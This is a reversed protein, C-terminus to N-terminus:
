ELEVEMPMCVQGPLTTFTNLHLQGVTNLGWVFVSGDGTVAVSHTEGGAIAVVDALDVLAPRLVNTGFQPTTPNVEDELGLQCYRNWGTTYLSGDATLWLSHRDGAAVSVVNSVDVVQTPVSYNSLTGGNGLQGHFNYGLGWATGDARVFYCSDTYGAAIAVVNGMVSRPTCGFRTGWVWANGGTDLAVVHSSGAAVDVLNTPAGLVQVVNVGGSANVPPAGGLVCSGTSGAFGWLAGSGKLMVAGRPFAAVQVVESIGPVQVPSASNSFLDDGFVFVSGANTALVTHFASAAAAAIDTTLTSDGLQGHANYGWTVMRSDEFLAVNHLRGAAVHMIQPELVELSFDDSVQGQGDAAAVTVRFTFNGVLGLTDLSFDPGTDAFSAPDGAVQDWSWVLTDLAAHGQVVEVSAHAEVLDGSLVSQDPGASVRLILLSCGKSGVLDGPPTSPCQDSCDDVGDGDGDLQSCLSNVCPGLQDGHDLHRGVAHAPVRITNCASPNNPACHCVEVMGAGFLDPRGAYAPRESVVFGVTAAALAAWARATTM